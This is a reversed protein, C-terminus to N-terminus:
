ELMLITGPFRQEKVISPWAWTKARTASKAEDPKTEAHGNDMYMRVRRLETKKM